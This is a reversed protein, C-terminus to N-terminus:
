VADGPTGTLAESEGDEDILFLGRDPAATVLRGDALVVVGTEEEPSRSWNETEGGDLPAALVERNGAVDGVYAVTRGDPALWPSRAAGAVAVEARFVGSSADVVVVVDNASGSRVFTIAGGDASWMPDREDASGDALARTSGDGDLELVFIGDSGGTDTVYAVADGKPSLATDSVDGVVELIRPEARSGVEAVVIAREGDADPVVAAITSGDPTVSVGIAEAGGLVVSPDQEALDFVFAQSTGSARSVFAIVSSDGSAGGDGAGNGSDASEAGGENPDGPDATGGADGGTDDSATTADDDRAGGASDADPSPEGGTSAGSADGRRPEDGDRTALGALLALVAVIASTILVVAARGRRKTRHDDDVAGLDSPVPSGPPTPHPPSTPVTADGSAPGARERHTRVRGLLTPATPRRTPDLDVMSTLWGYLPEQLEDDVHGDAARKGSVAMHVTQGASYVDASPRVELTRWVEPATWGPSFGRPSASSDDGLQTAIGFDTLRWEPRDIGFRLVNAPKVDGHVIGRGHMSALGGLIAELLLTARDSDMPTTAEDGDPVVGLDDKLNGDALDSVIWFYGDVDPPAMLGLRAGEALSLEGDVRYPNINDHNLGLLHGFEVDTVGVPGIKAAMERDSRVDRVRFVAGEGGRGIEAVVRWRGDLIVPPDDPVVM